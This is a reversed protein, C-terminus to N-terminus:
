YKVQSKYIIELPTLLNLSNKKLVLNTMKKCYIDKSKIKYSFYKLSDCGLIGEILRFNKISLIESSIDITDFMRFSNLKLNKLYKLVPFQNKNEIFKNLFDMFHPVSRIDISKIEDKYPILFDFISGDFNYNPRLDLKTIKFNFQSYEKISARIYSVNSGTFYDLVNQKKLKCYDCMHYTKTYSNKNVNITIVQKIKQVCILEVFYIIKISSINPALSVNIIKNIFKNSALYGSKDTKEFLYNLIRSSAKLRICIKKLNLSELNIPFENNQMTETFKIKRHKAFRPVYVPKSYQEVDQYKLIETAIDRFYRNLTRLYEIEIRNLFYSIELLVNFSLKEINFRGENEM